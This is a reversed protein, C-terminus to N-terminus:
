DSGPDGAEGALHLLRDAATRYARAMEVTERGSAGAWNALLVGTQDEMDDPPEEFIPRSMDLDPM